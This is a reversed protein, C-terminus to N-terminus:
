GFLRREAPTADTARGGVGLPKFPELGGSSEALLAPRPHRLWNSVSASPGLVPPARQHSRVGLCESPPFGFRDRFCRNFNGADHFGWREAIRRVEGRRAEANLLQALCRQLRQERIHSRVGGQESFLRYLTARSVGFERCLRDVGLDEADLNRAVYGRLLRATGTATEEEPPVRRQGLLLTRVLALFAAALDDAEAARGSLFAASLMRFAHELLRGRPSALPCSAYSPYRGPEYGVADHPIWLGCTEVATTVTRFCQSVDVLHLTQTDVRTPMEVSVGHGAGALYHEFLLFDHDFEPARIAPERDFRQPSFRAWSFILRDHPFFSAEASFRKSDGLVTLDFFGRVNERWSDIDYRM